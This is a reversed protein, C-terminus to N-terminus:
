SKNREVTLFLQTETLLRSARRDHLHWGLVSMMAKTKMCQNINGILIHKAGTAWIIKLMREFLADSFYDFLGTAYVMDVEVGKRLFDFANSGIYGVSLKDSHQPKLNHEAAYQLSRQDQDVGTIDLPVNHNHATISLHKMFTGDGCGLDLVRLPTQMPWNFIWRETIHHFIAKRQQLGTMEPRAMIFKDWPSSVYSAWPTGNKDFLEKEHAEYM